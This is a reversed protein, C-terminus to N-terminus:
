QRQYAGTFPNQKCPFSDSTHAANAVRVQGTFPDAFCRAGSAPRATAQTPAQLAPLPPLPPPTITPPAPRADQAAPLAPKPNTAVNSPPAASPIVPLAPTLELPAGNPSASAIPLTGVEMTPEGSKDSHKGLEVVVLVVGLLFLVGILAGIAIPM